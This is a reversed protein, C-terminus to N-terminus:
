YRLVTGSDILWWLSKSSVAVDIRKGSGADGSGDGRAFIIDYYITVPRQLDLANFPFDMEVYNNKFSFVTPFKANFSVDHWCCYTGRAVLAGGDHLMFVILARPPGENVSFFASLAPSQSMKFYVDSIIIKKDRLALTMKIPQIPESSKSTWNISIPKGLFFDAVNSKALESSKNVPPSTPPTPVKESPRNLSSSTQNEPKPQIIPSAGSEPVFRDLLTKYMEFKQDPSLKEKSMMECLLYLFRNTANAKESLPFDKQINQTVSSVKGGIEGDAKAIRLTTEASAQIKGESSTSLEVRPDLVSCDYQEEATASDWYSFCCLILAINKIEM